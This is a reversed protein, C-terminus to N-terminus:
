GPSREYGVIHHVIVGDGKQGKCVCCLQNGRALLVDVADADIPQRAVCKKLEAAEPAELGFKKVMVGQSLSRIMTTTLGAAEAKKALPSAVGYQLLRDLRPSAAQQLLRDFLSM